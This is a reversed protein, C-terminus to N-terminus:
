KHYNLACVDDGTALCKEMDLGLGMENAIGRDGDMAIDCLLACTKDDFGLKQWAALLACYGVESRVHDHDATVGLINFTCPGVSEGVTGIFIKALAACNEPEECQAVIRAGHIHGCRSIARRLIQEADPVNARIMEDYILGLWTARHEIQNRNIQIKEECPNPNNHIISM